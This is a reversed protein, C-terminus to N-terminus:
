HMHIYLIYTCPMQLDLSPMAFWAKVWTAWTVFAAKDSSHDYV